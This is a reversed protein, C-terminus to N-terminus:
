YGINMISTMPQSITENITRMLAQTMIFRSLKKKEKMEYEHHYIVGVGTTKSTINISFNGPYKKRLSIRHIHLSFLFHRFPIKKHM